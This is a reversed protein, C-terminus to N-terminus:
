SGLFYDVFYAAVKMRDKDRKMPDVHFDIGMARYVERSNFMDLFRDWVRKKTEEDLECDMFDLFSYVRMNSMRRVGRAAVQFVLSECYEPSSKIRELDQRVIEAERECLLINAM